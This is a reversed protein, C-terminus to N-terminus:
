SSIEFALLWENLEEPPLDQEIDRIAATLDVLGTELIEKEEPEVRELLDNFSLDEGTLSELAEMVSDLTDLDLRQMDGRALAYIGGRAVKGKTEKVLRYASLQHKALYQKLRLKIM